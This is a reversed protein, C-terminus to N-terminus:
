PKSRLAADARPHALAFAQVTSAVGRQAFALALYAALLLAGALRTGLADPRLAALSLAVGALAFLWLLARRRASPLLTQVGPLQLGRGCRRHLNIWGLFADIELLMGLVLMPLGVALVLVGVLVAREGPLWGVVAALALAVLGVRWFAGLTAGSIRRARRQLWLGGLALSLVAAAAVAGLAYGAGARVWGIGALPLGIAVWLLWAGQLRGPVQPVGQFMPMVVRSVAALLVLMWGVVGTAAHLDAWRLLPLEVAGALAAVLLGGMAATALAAVLSLGIGVHLLSGRAKALVGPLAVVALEFFALVLGIAGAARLGPSTWWFGAVLAAAGLNFTAHLGHAWWAGVQLRVGAAAPLFQLLSGLLANGLVGLTFVHVLAVTGPTWRSALLGPGEALLMLGALAGWAAVSRLFIGPHTVDPAREISLRAM